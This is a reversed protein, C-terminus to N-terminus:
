AAYVSSKQNFKKGNKGNGHTEGGKNNSIHPLIRGALFFVNRERSTNKM